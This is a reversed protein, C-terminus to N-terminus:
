SRISVKFTSAKFFLQTVIFDAGADVKEKLRLLDMAYSEAEPHGHPYGAVAITFESGCDQRIQRVLDAGYKLKEEAMEDDNKVEHSADGRLALINRIGLNKCKNLYGSVKSKPCNLCTMHLMTELGVYNIASICISKTLTQSYM